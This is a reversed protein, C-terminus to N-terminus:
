HKSMRGAIEALVEQATARSAAAIETGIHKHCPFTELCKYHPSNDWRVILTGTQTQWHYSYKQRRNIESETAYLVSGDQLAAKVRVVKVSEEDIFDTVRFTKVIRAAKLARILGHM